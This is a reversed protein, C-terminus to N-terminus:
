QPIGGCQVSLSPCFAHVALQLAKQVSRKTAGVALALTSVIAIALYMCALIKRAVTDEGYVEDMREPKVILMLISLPYTIAGNLVLALALFVSGATWGHPAWKGGAVHPVDEKAEKSEM